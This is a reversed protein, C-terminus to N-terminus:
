VEGLATAGAGARWAMAGLAALLALAAASLFPVQIGLGDYTWGAVPPGVVRALSAASQYVGMTAGRRDPRAGRSALSSLSPTSVGMGLALLVLAGVMPGVHASEGIMLLAVSMTVAGLIVLRVEGVRRSLPGILAGQVIVMVLGMLALLWGAHQADYHHRAQIFLAFVVEMQTGAFTLLGFLLIAGRTRADGLSERLAERDFRRARHSARVEQPLPPEPLRFVAFLANAFALGAAAFMPVDYGWRSLVGGIAPGFIFGLGFAAGVLGMGRARDAESTVDAIYATATSINAGCVGALTRGVFLWALSPAFGLVLMSAAQGLITTVLVPRRGHRDSLRGWVPAFFFQMASYTTMLFGLATASAGYAKAYYPLIPIVIGFGVLDVFVVLFIIVLPSRDRRPTTIQMVHGVYAVRTESAIGAYHPYASRITIRFRQKRPM